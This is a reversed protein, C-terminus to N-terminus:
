RQRRPDAAGEVKAVNPYWLLHTGEAEGCPAVAEPPYPQAGKKNVGLKLIVNCSYVYNVYFRIDEINNGLFYIKNGIM